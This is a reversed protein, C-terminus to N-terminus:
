YNIKFQIKLKNLTEQAKQKNLEDPELRIYNEFAEIAEYIKTEDTLVLLKYSEMLEKVSVFRTKEFTVKTAQDTPVATEDLIKQSEKLALVADLFYQNAIIAPNQGKELANNYKETGLIRLSIAKNNLLVPATGAFDPDLKYGEDFKEIALQYDKRNFAAAGDLLCQSIKENNEAIKKNKEEIEAIKKQYEKQANDSTERTEPPQNQQANVTFLGFSFNFFLIVIIKKM